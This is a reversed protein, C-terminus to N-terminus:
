IKTGHIHIAGASSMIRVATVAAEDDPTLVWCIMGGNLINEEFKERYSDDVYRSLVSDVTTDTLDASSAAVGVPGGVVYAAAAIGVGSILALTGAIFDIAKHLTIESDLTERPTDPDRIMEDLWPTRGFHDVIEQHSGMVSIESADFGAKLLGDLAREFAAVDRFIGVVNQENEAEMPCDMGERLVEMDRPVEIVTIRVDNYVALLSTSQRMM